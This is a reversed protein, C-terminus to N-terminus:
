EELALSLVPRPPQMAIKSRRLLVANDLYSIRQTITPQGSLLMFLEHKPIERLERESVDGVLTAVDSAALHTHVGLIQLALCNNVLTPWEQNYLRRFQSADQWFSWTRLGYGRMLTTAQLLEEMRGLQAAEDIMFLTAIEPVQKRRFIAKLLTVIWLRMLTALPALLHPPLVLYITFPSGNTVQDLDVKNIPSLSQQVDRSNLDDLASQATSVISSLVKNEAYLATELNRVQTNESAKVLSQVSAPNVSMQALIRRLDDFSAEHRSERTVLYLIMCTLMQRAKNDWFPDPVSKGPLIAHALSRAEDVPARHHQKEAGKMLDFPNISATSHIGSVAFPDIVWVQQGLSKRYGATLRAAEGKIDVCVVSGSYNLLNPILANVGKGSGTHGITMLNSEAPACVPLGNVQGLIIETQPYNM